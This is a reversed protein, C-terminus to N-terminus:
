RPTRLGGTREIRPNARDPEIRLAHIGDSVGCDIAGAEVNIQIVTRECKGLIDAPPNRAREEFAFALYPQPRGIRRLTPRHRQEGAHGNEVFLEGRSVQAEVIVRRRNQLAREPWGRLSARVEYFFPVIRAAVEGLKVSQPQEKIEALKKRRRLRVVRISFKGRQEVRM